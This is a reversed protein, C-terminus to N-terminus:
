LFRTVVRSNESISLISVAYSLELFFLRETSNKGKRAALNEFVGLGTTFLELCFFRGQGRKRSWVCVLLLLATM